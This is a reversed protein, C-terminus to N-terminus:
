VVDDEVVDSIKLYKNSIELVRKMMDAFKVYYEEIEDLKKHHSLRLNVIETIYWLIIKKKIEILSQDKIISIKKRKMDDHFIPKKIPKLTEHLEKKMANLDINIVKKIKNIERILDISPFELLLSLRKLFTKRCFGKYTFKQLLAVTRSNMGMTNM